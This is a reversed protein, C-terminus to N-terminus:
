ASAVCLFQVFCVEKWNVAGNAVLELESAVQQAPYKNNVDSGQPSFHVVDQADKGQCWALVEGYVYPKLAPLTVMGRCARVIAIRDLHLVQPALTLSADLFRRGEHKNTHPAIHWGDKSRIAGM